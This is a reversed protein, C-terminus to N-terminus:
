AYLGNVYDKIERSSSLFGMCLEWHKRFGAYGEYPNPAVATNRRQLNAMSEDFGHGDGKALYDLGMLLSTKFIMEELDDKLFRGPYPDLDEAEVRNWGTSAPNQSELKGRTYLFRDIDERMRRWPPATKAPPLHRIWLQNDLFFYHGQFRANILYDIDEGRTVLPDFALSTYLHRHVVMNGGFVWSTPKLREGSAIMRFAENMAKLAPWQSYVWDVNEPLYYNGDANVYYGALGWVESGNSVSGINEAVKYLYDPDEYVEDDDFLVAADAGTLCAAALCCNRINSYGRLVLLDKYAGGGGDEMLKWIQALCSPGIHIVPFDARFADVIERLREEMRTVLGPHTAAGLVVVRFGEYNLHKISELARGLTGETDIPTPHDYIEDEENFPEGAKRGWYSPIVITFKMTRVEDDTAIRAEKSV